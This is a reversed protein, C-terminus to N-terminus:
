VHIFCAHHTLARLKGWTQPDRLIYSHLNIVCLKLCFLSPKRVASKRFFCVLFRRVDKGTFGKWLTSVKSSISFSDSLYGSSGFVAADYSKLFNGQIM